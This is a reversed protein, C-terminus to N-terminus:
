DISFVINTSWFVSLLHLLSDYWHEAESSSILGTKFCAIYNQMPIINGLSMLRQSFFDWFNVLGWVM